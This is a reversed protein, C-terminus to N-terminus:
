HKDFPGLMKQWLRVAAEDKAVPEKNYFLAGGPSAGSRIRLWGDAQKTLDRIEISLAKLERTRQELM